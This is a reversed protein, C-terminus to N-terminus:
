HKLLSDLGFTFRLETRYIVSYTLRLVCYARLDNINFTNIYVQTQIKLRYWLVFMTMQYPPSQSYKRNRKCTQMKQKETVLYTNGKFNYTKFKCFKKFGQRVEM